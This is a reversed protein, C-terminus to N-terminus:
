AVIAFGIELVSVRKLQYCARWTAIEVIEQPGNVVLEDRVNIAMASVAPQLACQPREGLHVTSAPTSSTEEIM